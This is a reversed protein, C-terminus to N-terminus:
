KKETEKILENEVEWSSFTPMAWSEIRLDRREENQGLSRVLGTAKFTMELNMVRLPTDRAEAEGRLLDLSM